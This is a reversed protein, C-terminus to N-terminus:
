VLNQKYVNEICLTSKEVIKLLSSLFLVKNIEEKASNHSTAATSEAFGIEIMKRCLIYFIYADSFLEM